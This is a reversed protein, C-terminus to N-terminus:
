ADNGTWRPYSGLVHLWQTHPTAESIAAAIEPDSRHGQVDVFFYYTGLQRGTPRSEIIRLGFSALHDDELSMTITADSVTWIREAVAPAAAGALLVVFLSCCTWVKM